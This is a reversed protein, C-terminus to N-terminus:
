GQIPEDPWIVNLPFGPQNPVDLLAQRYDVWQQQLESSLAAWRVANFKDVNNVLLQNRHQRTAESIAIYQEPTM